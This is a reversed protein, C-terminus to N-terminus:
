MDEPTIVSFVIDHLTVATKDLVNDPMENWPFRFRHLKYFPVPVRTILVAGPIRIMGFVKESGTMGPSGLFYIKGNATVATKCRQSCSRLERKLEKWVRDVEEDISPRFDLREIEKVQDLLAEVARRIKTIDRVSM